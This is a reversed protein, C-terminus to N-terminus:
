SAEDLLFAEREAAQRKRDQQRSDDPEDDPIGFPAQLSLLLTPQHSEFLEAEEDSELLEHYHCMPHGASSAPFVCGKVSCRPSQHPVLTASAPKEPVPVAPLTSAEPLASVPALCPQAALAGCPESSPRPSINVVPSLPYIPNSM